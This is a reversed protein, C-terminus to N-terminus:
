LSEFVSVFVCIDVFRFGEFNEGEIKSFEELFDDIQTEMKRELVLLSKFNEFKVGGVDGSSEDSEEILEERVLVIIILFNNKKKYQNGIFRRKKRKRSYVKTLFM